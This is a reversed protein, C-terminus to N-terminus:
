FLGVENSRVGGGSVDDIDDDHIDGLQEDILLEPDLNPTADPSVGSTQKETMVVCYRETNSM